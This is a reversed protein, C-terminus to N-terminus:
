AEGAPTGTGEGRRAAQMTALRAWEQSAALRAQAVWTELEAVPKTEGTSEVIRALERVPTVALQEFTTIGNNRLMAGIKPGIGDIAELDEQRFVPATSTLTASSTSVAGAAGLAADSGVRGASTDASTTAGANSEVAAPRESAADGEDPGTPAASAAPASASSTGTVPTAASM